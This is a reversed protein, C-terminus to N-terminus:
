FLGANVLTEAMRKANEPSVGAAQLGMETYRKREKTTTKPAAHQLKEGFYFNESGFIEEFKKRAEEESSAKVMRLTGSGHANAYYKKPKNKGM